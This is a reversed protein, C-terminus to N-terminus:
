DNEYGTKLNWYVAGQTLLIDRQELALRLQEPAGIYQIRILADKLSLRVIELSQILPSMELKKRLFVLNKLGKLEVEALLIRDQDFRLLNEQKWTEEIESRLSKAASLLTNPIPRELNNEFGQILTKDDGRIGIRSTAVEVIKRGQIEKVSAITLLTGSAGYRKVISNIREKNVEIAQEASIAAIDQTDGKPIILNILGDHNPMTRWAKLWINGADWLQSTAQARFVPLVIWSKSKTEAFKVRASRLHIRMASPNFRINLSALYRVSSSKEGVVDISSVLEVLESFKLNRLKLQEKKPVIRKILRSYAVEQGKKLAIKQAVAASESTEDVSVGRVIYVEGRATLIVCPYILLMLLFVKALSREFAFTAFCSTNPIKVIFCPLLFAM